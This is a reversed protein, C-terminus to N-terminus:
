PTPTATATPAPIPALPHRREHADRLTGRRRRRRRVRRPSRARACAAALATSSTRDAEHHGRQCHGPRAAARPADADLGIAHHVAPEAGAAARSGHHRAGAGDRDDRRHRQSQQQSQPRPPRCVSWPTAFDDFLAAKVTTPRSRPRDAAALLDRVRMDRYLSDPTNAIGTDKCSRRARGPESSTTPTCWCGTARPHVQFTEDPACEFDIAVGDAHSLIMNNAASKPTAYVARMALALHEQELVKRRILALPVGVQRTTATPNAPLQRHDRHRRRQLRLAGPRRGRHLDPLGARRRPARAARHRDRRM